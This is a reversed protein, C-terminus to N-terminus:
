MQHCKGILYHLILLEVRESANEFLAFNFSFAMKSKRATLFEYFQPMSEKKAFRFIEALHAFAHRLFSNEWSVTAVRLSTQWAGEQGEKSEYACKKATICDRTTTSSVRVRTVSIVHSLLITHAPPLSMHCYFSATFNEENEVGKFIQFQRLFKKPDVTLSFFVGRVATTM